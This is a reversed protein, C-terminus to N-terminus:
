RAPPRHDDGDNVTIISGQPLYYSAPQESSPLTLVEGDDGRITIRPRADPDKSEIITKRSLGTVEDLAESMTVGEIIDDFRVAGGVETLLPVAFPDWEALLTPGELKQGDKVLLKAGYIVQYRERERGSDDVLLLEGNRNMVVAHRRRAERHDPQTFKVTGANRNELSSQEARRTAAGGIHFTRMTLQTGPEGISQAAIVGM